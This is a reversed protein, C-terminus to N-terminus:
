IIASEAVILFAVSSEIHSSPLSICDSQRGTGRLSPTYKWLSILYSSPFIIAM